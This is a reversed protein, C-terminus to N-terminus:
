PRWRKELWGCVADTVVEGKDRISPFSFVYTAVFYVIFVLTVGIM